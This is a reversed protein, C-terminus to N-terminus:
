QNFNVDAPMGPKLKGSPDKVSLDIAYVTTQRDEKTQVNRPTYEAQDSIRTVAGDFFQGPYSNVAVQATDNLKVKGYQDEPLYVKVTLQDLQGITLATVGPQAVEGPQLIRTMVVGSVAANVTLLKAQTDIVQVGAQAQALAKEAQTIGAQAQAVAAQAQNVGAQAQDLSAKAAQVALSQDGTLLSNYHDVATQYREQAAALRARAELVDKATQTSLMQDYEKQASLLEAKASDFNEKVFSELETKSNQAISRDSLDKAVLYAAQADSLRQEATQLDANSANQIVTQFNSQETKLAQQASTVEAEAAAIQETQQFYWVPLSFDGPTSQDWSQSRAPQSAAQAANRQIEYQIRAVDAAAKASNLGAQVTDFAKHAGDLNAQATDVAAQAQARQASLLDDQVRFLADGVKVTDGQQVYVEAVTGSVQPAVNVEVAEIIGSAQLSQSPTGTLTDCGAAALVFVLVIVIQLIKRYPQMEVELHTMSRGPNKLRIKQYSDGPSVADSSAAM